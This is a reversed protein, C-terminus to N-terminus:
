DGDPDDDPVDPPPDHDGPDPTYDPDQGPNIEPPDIEPPEIEPPDIEPFEDPDQGPDIDPPLDPELPPIEPEGGSPDLPDPEPFDPEPAPDNDGPDPLNIEPDSLPIEIEGGGYAETFPKNDKGRIYQGTFKDNSGSDYGSNLSTYGQGVAGCGICTYVDIFEKVPKDFKIDFGGHHHGEALGLQVRSNRVGSFRLDPNVFHKKKDEYFTVGRAFCETMKGNSDYDLDLEGRYKGPKLINGLKEFTINLPFTIPNENNNHRLNNYLNKSIHIRAEYRPLASRLFFDYLNYPFQVSNSFFITPELMSEGTNTTSQLMRATQLEQIRNIKERDLGMSKFGDKGTMLEKTLKEM